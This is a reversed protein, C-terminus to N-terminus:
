RATGDIVLAARSPPEADAPGASKDASRDASKEPFPQLRSTPASPDAEPWAAGDRVITPKLLIVLERKRMSTSKQRFLGGVVPLEGLGPVATSDERREQSMLGGIAAIEGDRLRVISDTENIASSALPLQYSGLSGLNIAKQKETVTSIAPHVHLMVQGDEGIQPTVDLSIGSFFPQLVVSPTSTSTSGSSTTTSSVGTVYLEDSGVKLVAKQNNLTAIRPSSLVQVKGQGELFSLLAAFHTAQFALGYFPATASGSALNGGPTVATGNLNLAGNAALTVGPQALGLSVAGGLARGFAAWNIGTQSSEGLEVELIKAELMVQREISVQVAQLYSEVQRLEAPTARVVVVGAAPNLVLSRRPAAIGVPGSGAAAALGGATDIGNDDLGLLAQLSAKVDRWFDADSSTRVYASDDSRGNHGAGGPSNGANGSSGGYAGSSSAGNPSNQGNGSTISASSVRLDSTGQRRGPLYNIRFLRTQVTNPLVHVRKGNAGGYRVEYGYLDRLTELAEPVTTGRLNLTISGAVDPSVLMQWDSGMGLQMFVQAAPAQNLALDFRPEASRAPGAALLALAVGALTAILRPSPSTSRPM